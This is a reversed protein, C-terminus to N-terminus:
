AATVRCPTQDRLMANLITLLKHMCAVLAVKKPKGAACLRQYFPRIVPNWRTAVLTAMYLACRVRARGGYIIRRGRLTGSDCNLPAVGVLTAIAKRDLRGLEPLDALLTYSTAPGIGKVSRLLRDNVQWLPSAQVARKLTDDLEALEAELWSLHAQIRARVPPLATDLRQREAVLIGVLQRRRALWAALQQAQADPLARPTPQVVAAFRALLQADLADTKALQGVARAFDRVQRPNVVAVPVGAAGLAAVVPVERGGTAELVVLAPGLTQLRVVLAAMGAEDHPATWQEGSPRVAIDLQAKAVDIGVTIAQDM